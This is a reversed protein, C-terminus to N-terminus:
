IRPWTNLVQEHSYVDENTSPSSFAWLTQSKVWLKSLQDSILSIGQPSEEVSSSFSYRHGTRLCGCPAGIMLYIFVGKTVWDELRRLHWCSCCVGLRDGGPIHQGRKRWSGWVVLRHWSSNHSCLARTLHVSSIWSCQRTFKSNGNQIAMKFKGIGRNWLDRVCLVLWIYKTYAYQYKYQSAMLQFTGVHYIHMGCLLLLVVGRIGPYLSKKMWYASWTLSIPLEDLDPLKIKTTAFIYAYDSM